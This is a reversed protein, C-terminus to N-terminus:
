PFVEVSRRSTRSLPLYKVPCERKRVFPCVRLYNKIHDQHGNKWLRVVPKSNSSTFGKIERKRVSPTSRIVISRFMKEPDCFFVFKTPSWNMGTGSPYLMLYISLNLDIMRMIISVRLFWWVLTKRLNVWSWRTLPSTTGDRLRPISTTM